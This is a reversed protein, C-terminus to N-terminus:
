RSNNLLTPLADFSRNLIFSLGKKTTFKALGLIVANKISAKQDSGDNDESSTLSDRLPSLNPDDLSKRRTAEIMLMETPISALIARRRREDMQNEDEESDSSPIPSTLRQQEETSSM